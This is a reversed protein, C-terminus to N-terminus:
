CGCSTDCCDEIDIAEENENNKAVNGYRSIVSAEQNM